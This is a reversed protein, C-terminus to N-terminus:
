PRAKRAASRKVAALIKNKSGPAPKRPTYRKVPLSIRLTM